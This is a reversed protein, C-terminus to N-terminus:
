HAEMPLLITFRTHGPESEFEILGNHQSTISQAISLGLGTGESRNTVMPYFIREMIEKPIGPGDDIIEIKTVLKNFTSGITYSCVPRTRLTISGKADTAQVANRVINLIAQILLEIDATLEPISPDYDLTFQLQNDFEAQLLKVVRQLAEHVNVTEINLRTNPGLMRKMLNQLRDSENIIIQTFEQIPYEGMERELLQAAGRIGGLPNNIEHALGRAIERATIHQRILNEEKSIRLIRDVISLEVLIQSGENHNHIIKISCDAHHAEGNFYMEIERHTYGTESEDAQAILDSFRRTDNIRVNDLNFQAAQKSSIAFFDEAVSNMYEINQETDTVLVATSLNDLISLTNIKKPSMIPSM